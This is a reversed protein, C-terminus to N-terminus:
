QHHGSEPCVCPQGEQDGTAKPWTFLEPWHVPLVIIADGVPQANLQRHLVGEGLKDEALTATVDPLAAAGEGQTVPSSVSLM